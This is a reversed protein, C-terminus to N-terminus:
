RDGRRPSYPPPDDEGEMCPAGSNMGSVDRGAERHSEESESGGRSRKSIKDTISSRMNSIWMKARLYWRPLLDPTGNIVIGNIVIIIYM